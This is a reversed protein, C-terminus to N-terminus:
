IKHPFSKRIATLGEYKFRFIDKESETGSPYLSDPALPFHLGARHRGCLSRNSCLFTKETAAEAPTSM